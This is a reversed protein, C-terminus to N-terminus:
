RVARRYRRQAERYSEWYEPVNQRLVVRLKRRTNKRLKNPEKTWWMSKDQIIKKACSSAFTDRISTELMAAVVELDDKSEVRFGNYYNLKEGLENRFESWDTNRLNRITKPTKHPTDIRYVIYKHDSLSSEDSM